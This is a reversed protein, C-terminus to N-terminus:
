LEIGTSTPSITWTSPAGFPLALLRYFEVRKTWPNWLAIVCLPAFAPSPALNKYAKELDITRGVLRRAEHNRLSAHLSSADMSSDSYKVSVREDTASEAFVKAISVIEDVGGAAPKEVTGSTSNHAFCSFDDIPRVSNGQRIGVRPAPVWFHGLERTLEEATYPGKAKGASVEEKTKQVVAEDLEPDKSPRCKGVIAHQVWRASKLM